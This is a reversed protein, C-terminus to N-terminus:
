PPPLGGSRAQKRILQAPAPGPSTRQRSLVLGLAVGTAFGGLHAALSVQPTSLDYVTELAVMMLIMRLRQGARPSQRDRFLLGALIGIVGMICGSAGVLENPKTWNLWRLTLVWVGAGVGTVLYGLLFKFGGILRELEPGLLYLALLNVGLHLAGYHLFPSTLLRWYEHHTWFDPKVFGAVAISRDLGTAMQVLTVLVIGGILTFSFVPRISQGLQLYGIVEPSPILDNLTLKKAYYLGWLGAFLALAGLIFFISRFILTREIPEDIEGRLREQFASLFLFGVVHLLVIAAGIGIAWWSRKRISHKQGALYEDASIAPREDILDDEPYM